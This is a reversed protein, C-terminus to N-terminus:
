CSTTRGRAGFSSWSRSDGRSVPRGRHVRDRREVARRIRPPVGLMENTWPDSWQPEGEDGVELASAAEDHAVSVGIPRASCSCHTAARGRRAAVLRELLGAARASSTASCICARSASGARVIRRISRPRAASRMSPVKSDSESRAAVLGLRWFAPAYTPNLNSREDADRAGRRRDAGAARRRRRPSVVVEGGVASAAARRHLADRAAGTLGNAECVMGFRGWRSGDRPDQAVSERAQRVLDEIEPALPGLSDLAPPDPLAARDDRITVGGGGRVAVAACGSRSSAFAHLLPRQPRKPIPSSRRTGPCSVQPDSRTRRGSRLRQAKQGSGSPQSSGTSSRRRVAM